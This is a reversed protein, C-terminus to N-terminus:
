IGGPAAMAPLVDFPETAVPEGRRTSLYALGVGALTGAALTKFFAKNVAPQDKETTKSYLYVLVATLLALSLAFVYPQQLFAFMTM